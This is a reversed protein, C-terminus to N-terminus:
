TRRINTARPGKGEKRSVDEDFSVADGETLDTINCGRCSTYHFFYEKGQGDSIFGFGKEALLRAITGTM